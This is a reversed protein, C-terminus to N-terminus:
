NELKDFAKIQVAIIKELTGDKIFIFKLGTHFFEIYFKDYEINSEEIQASLDKLLYLPINKAFKKDEEYLSPTNKGVLFNRHIEEESLGENRKRSEEKVLAKAKEQYAKFDFSDLTQFAKNLDSETFYCIEASKENIQFAYFASFEDINEDSLRKLFNFDKLEAEIEAKSFYAVGESNDEDFTGVLVFAGASIALLFITFLINKM